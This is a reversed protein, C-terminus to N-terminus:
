KYISAHALLLQFQGTVDTFCLTRYGGHEGFHHSLVFYVQWDFLKILVMRCHQKSPLQFITTQTYLTTTASGRSPPPKPEIGLVYCLSSNISVRLFDIIPSIRHSASKVQLSTTKPEIGM